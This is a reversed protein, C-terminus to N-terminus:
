EIFEKVASTLADIEDIAAKDIDSALGGTMGARRYSARHYLMGLIPLQHAALAERLTAEDNTRKDIDSGVFAVRAATHAGIFKLTKPLTVLDNFSCRVPVLVVNSIALLRGVSADIGPPCDAIWTGDSEKAIPHPVERRGLWQTATGQRDLDLVPLGLSVALTVAMTTKGSGGKEQYISIKM